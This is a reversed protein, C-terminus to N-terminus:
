TNVPFDTQIGCNRATDKLVQESEEQTPKCVANIYGNTSSKVAIGM